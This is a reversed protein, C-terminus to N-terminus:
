HQKLKDINELAFDVIKNIVEEVELAKRSSMLKRQLAQIKAYTEWPIELAIKGAEPKAKDLLIKVVRKLRSKGFGVGDITLINERLLKEKIEKPTKARAILIMIDPKYFRSYLTVVQYERLRLTKKEKVTEVAEARKVGLIDALGDWLGQIWKSRWEEATLPKAFPGRMDRIRVHWEELEKCEVIVHPREIPPDHGLKVINLVKGGYVLIDPRLATYFSWARKLDQSDEWGIPRPAEIFFSLFGRGKVYVVVNPPIWGLKQKGSREFSLYGHEPYVIYSGYEYLINLISALVWTQYISRMNTRLSTRLAAGAVREFEEHDIKERFLDYMYNFIKKRLHAYPDELFSRLEKSFLVGQLNYNSILEEIESTLKKIWKKAVEVESGLIYEIFSDRLEERLRSFKQALDGRFRFQRKPDHKDLFEMIERHKRLWLPEEM